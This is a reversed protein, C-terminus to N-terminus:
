IDIDARYTKERQLPQIGAVFNILAECDNAVESHVQIADRLVQIVNLSTVEPVDTYIKKRGKGLMRLREKSKCVFFAGSHLFLRRDVYSSVFISKNL